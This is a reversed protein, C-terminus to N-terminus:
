HIPERQKQEAVFEQYQMEHMALAYKWWLLPDRKQNYPNADLGQGQMFDFQAQAAPPLDEYRPRPM